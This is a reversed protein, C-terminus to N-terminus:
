KKVTRYLFIQYLYSIKIFIFIITTNYLVKTVTNVQQEIDWSRISHDWGGSYVTNNNQDDFVVANVAGVHGSLTVAQAKILKSNNNEVKLKKKQPQSTSESM